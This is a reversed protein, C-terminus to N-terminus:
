PMKVPLTGLDFPTDTRPTDLPPIEIQKTISGSPQTKQRGNIPPQNSFSFRLTYKGSPVDEFRFYGESDVTAAYTPQKNRELQSKARMKKKQESYVKGDKTKAWKKYLEQKEAITTTKDELIKRLSDPPSSMTNGNKENYKKMKESYAKGEKTEAWKKLLERKEDITKTRDEHIKKVTDPIPPQPFRKSPTLTLYRHRWDIKDEYEKPVTLRGIVPQGTGGITVNITEGSDAKAYVGNNSIYTSFESDSGLYLARSVKLQGPFVKDFLFHGNEDTRTEFPAQDQIPFGSQIQTLSAKHHAAPKSGILITGEVKAWRILKITSPEKLKENDVFAFGDPHNVIITYPGKEPSLKFHGQSDTKTFTANTHPGLYNGPWIKGDGKSMFVKAQDAPNGDPTIITGTINTAPILEFDITLNGDKQFIEKSIKPLYGESTAKLYYSSDNFFLDIKYTGAKADAFNIQDWHCEGSNNIRGTIIRATPIPKKTTADIVQGTIPIMPQLTVTQATPQPSLQETTRIYGKKYINYYLPKEPAHDWQWLGNKDTSCHGMEPVQAEYGKLLYRHISAKKIPEGKEDIVRISIRKGPKLHIIAPKEPPFPFEYITPAWSKSSILFSVTKDREHRPMAAPITFHGDTAVKHRKRIGVLSTIPTMYADTIAKGEPDLIDGEFPKSRNLTITKDSALLEEISLPRHDGNFIFNPHSLYIYLCNKNTTPSFRDFQWHGKADTIITKSIHPYIEPCHEYPYAYSQQSAIRVEVGKIPNGQEDKVFSGITKPEQMRFTLQKKLPSQSVGDRWYYLLKPYAPMDISASFLRRATDLMINLRGKDDTTNKTNRMRPNTEVEADPIPNGEPDLVTIEISRPEKTTPPKPEPTETITPQNPKPPAKTVPNTLGITATTLLLIIAAATWRRQKPHFAAITQIRRKLLSRKTIVGVTGPLPHTSQLWGVVNLMANGYQDRRDQGLRNLVLEDCALECDGAARHAALHVLPNFWHVIQAIRWFTQTLLDQRKLHALEHLFIWQFDSSIQDNNEHKENTPQGTSGFHKASELLSGSILIKPRLWGSLAPGIPRDVILLEVRRRIGMQRKCSDLIRCLAEGGAGVYKAERLLKQLRIRGSIYRVLMILFGFSWITVVIKWASLNTWFSSATTPTTSDFKASTSASDGPLTITTQSQTSSQELHALETQNTVFYLESESLPAADPLNFTDIIHSVHPPEVNTTLNFLSMQSQPLVPCLLRALVILWLASRWGISIQRFYRAVLLIILILLAAQGSASFLNKAAVTFFSDWQM